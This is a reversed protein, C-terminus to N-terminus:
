EICPFYDLISDKINLKSYLGYVLDYKIEKMVFNDFIYQSDVLVDDDIFLLYDGIAKSAGFNRNTAANKKHPINFYKILNNTNNVPPGNNVIIIEIPKFQKIEDILKSTIKNLLSPIIVSINNM